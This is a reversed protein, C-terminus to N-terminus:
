SSVAAKFAAATPEVGGAARVLRNYRGLWNATTLVEWRDDAAMRAAFDPLWTETMPKGTDRRIITWSGCHPELAPALM